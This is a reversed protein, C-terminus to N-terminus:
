GAAMAAQHCYCSAKVPVDSRALALDLQQKILHREVEEGRAELCEHLGHLAWLNNPHQSARSLTDDLGLDARYVAEAEEYRQKSSCCPVSRTAPPNCGAGRSTMSCTTRSTCPADCLARVRRRPQGPSVRARRRDHCRRGRAPRRRHQQAGAPHRAGQRTSGPLARSAAEAGAVDGTAAYALCKAYLLLATTALYLEPDAPLPEDILDQWRGFRVQVHHKMAIFAEAPDAFPPSEVRLFDEPIEEILQEAAQMAAGYQGAFMAGYIVFHTNHNRYLTYVNMHGENALWRQDAEVAKQNWLVVDHYAGCLVDIHTPMHILHGADPCLQRLRDGHRLALEPTPSMEMLHVYLHLMGPHDWAGDIEDFGKEMVERCELTKAPEKPEGTELDWMQWPTENLMADAFVALVDADDPHAEHVERMAATYDLNWPMMDEELDHQPYRAHLAGILAAEVPTVRDVLASAAQTADYADALNRSRTRGDMLHWPLNYNPGVGIAVGWHAMACDADAEIAKQFCVVAEAHNFGYLWNLGRDFWLQADVSDTTVTRTFSGLDYYEDM